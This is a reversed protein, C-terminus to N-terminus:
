GLYSVNKFQFNYFVVLVFCKENKIFDNYYFPSVTGSEFRCRVQSLFPIKLNCAASGNVGVAEKIQILLFRLDIYEVGKIYLILPKGVGVM